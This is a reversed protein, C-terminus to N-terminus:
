SKVQMPLEDACTHGNQIPRREDAPQALREYGARQKQSRGRLPADLENWETKRSPFKLVRTRM